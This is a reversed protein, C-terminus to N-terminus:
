GGTGEMRVECFGMMMLMRSAMRMLTLPRRTYRSGVEGWYTTAMPQTIPVSVQSDSVAMGKASKEVPMHICPFCIECWPMSRTLLVPMHQM